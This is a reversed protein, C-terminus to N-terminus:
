MEFSLVAYIALHSNLNEVGKIIPIKYRVLSGLGMGTSPIIFEIGGGVTYYIVGKFPFKRSGSKEVTGDNFLAPMIGTEAYLEIYNLFVQKIRTGIFLHAETYNEDIWFSGGVDFNILWYTTETIEMLRILGGIMFPYGKGSGDISGTAIGGSFYVGAAKKEDKSKDNAILNHTIFITFIFLIITTKTIKLLKKM